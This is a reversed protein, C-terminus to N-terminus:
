GRSGPSRRALEVQGRQELQDPLLQALGELGVDDIHRQVVDVCAEDAEREVELVARSGCSSRGTPVPRVERIRSPLSGSRSLRSASKAAIPDRPTPVRALDHSPTGIRTPSSAMPTMLTWLVWISSRNPASSSRSSEVIAALTPVATWFARSNRSECRWATSIDVSASTPRSIEAVRSGVTTSSRMTSWAMWRRAASELATKRASGSPRENRAITARPSMASWSSAVVISRPPPIMPPASAAPRGSATM